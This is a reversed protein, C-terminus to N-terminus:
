RRASARFWLNFAWKEGQEVPAGGHLSLSHREMLGPSCNHFIVLKGAEAPISLKLRPFNTGGGTGPTNLYGLVTILRQGGNAMNRQGADTKPDFADFHPKYQAGELYHILQFSEAYTLPLGILSSIRLAVDEFVKDVSHDLWCVSNTRGDSIIGKQAGSVKARKMNNTNAISIMHTCEAPSLFRDVTYVRPDINLDIIARKM